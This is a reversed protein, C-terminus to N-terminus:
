SCDCVTLLKDPRAHTSGVLGSPGANATLLLSLRRCGSRLRSAGVSVHACGVDNRVTKSASFAALAAEDALTFVHDLRRRRRRRRERTCSGEEEEEAAAVAARPISSSTGRASEGPRGGVWQERRTGLHRWSGSRRRRASPPVGGGSRPSLHPDAQLCTPLTAPAARVQCVCVCECARACWGSIPPQRTCQASHM